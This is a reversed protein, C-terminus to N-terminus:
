ENASAPQSQISAARLLPIGEDLRTLRSLPLHMTSGTSNQIGTRVLDGRSCNHDITVDVRKCPGATAIGEINGTTDNHDIRANNL